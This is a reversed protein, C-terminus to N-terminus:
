YNKTQKIYEDWIVNLRQKSRELETSLEDIKVLNSPIKAIETEQHNVLQKGVILMKEAERIRTVVRNAIQMMNVYVVLQTDTLMFIDTKLITWVLKTDPHMKEKFGDLHELIASVKPVTKPFQIRYNTEVIFDEKPSPHQYDLLELKSSTVDCLQLFKTTEALTSAILEELSEREQAKLRKVERQTKKMSRIREESERKQYVLRTTLKDYRQMMRYIAMKFKEQRQEFVFQYDITDAEMRRVKELINELSKKFQQLENDLKKMHIITNQGLARILQQKSYNTLESRIKADDSYVRFMAEMDVGSKVEKMANERPGFIECLQVWCKAFLVHLENKLSETHTPVDFTTPM